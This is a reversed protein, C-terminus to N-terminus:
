LSSLAKAQSGASDGPAEVALDQSDAKEPAPFAGSGVCQRGPSLFWSLWFQRQECFSNGGEGGEGEGQKM